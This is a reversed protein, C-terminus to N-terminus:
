YDKTKGCKTCKKQFVGKFESGCHQCKGAARWARVRQNAEYPTGLFISEGSWKVKESLTVSTLLYCGSFAKDGISIVSDPITIAKLSACEAFSEAGISSVSNPITVSKLSTCRKFAGYGIDTVGDPITVSELFICEWFAGSRIAKVSNPIVVNKIHLREFAGQGIEYVNEPIVVDVSEGQYKKLVGGEIAFDKQNVVNVTDATINVINQIYNNVIADKMVFSGGCYQCNLIPEESKAQLHAGCNPCNLPIVPM